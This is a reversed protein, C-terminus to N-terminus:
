KKTARKAPAPPETDMGLEETLEAKRARMEGGLEKLDVNAKTAKAFMEEEEEQVHHDIYDALVKLKADFMPDQNDMSSIQAILGKASAHEVEAENMMDDDNIADRVAPYFIEEEVQAHVTLEHCVQKALSAKLEHDEAKKAKEIAKFLTKVKKHDATLLKIADTGATRATPKAKVATSAQKGTDM